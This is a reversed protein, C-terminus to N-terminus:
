HMLPNRPQDVAPSENQFGLSYLVLDMGGGSALQRLFQLTNRAENEFVWECENFENNILSPVKGGSYILKCNEFKKNRYHAGDLIVQQNKILQKSM